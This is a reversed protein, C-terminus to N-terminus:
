YVSYVQTGPILIQVGNVCTYESAITPGTFTGIGDGKVLVDPAWLDYISDPCASRSEPTSSANVVTISSAADLLKKLTQKYKKETNSEALCLTVIWFIIFIYLISKM